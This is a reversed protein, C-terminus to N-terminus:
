AQKPKVRWYVGYRRDIIRSLPVMTVDRSQGKTRFTLPAKSVLDIWSKPEGAAAVFEPAAPPDPMRPPNDGGRRMEETLGNRGLDGALVVPGYMIAQLTGDDPMPHSHLSMPLTARLEDTAEWTRDVALYGNSRSATVPKGNVTLSIGGNTWYPERIRLTLQVPKATIVRLRTEGRNFFSTEQRVRIGKEEWDLDSSVFLNVYV